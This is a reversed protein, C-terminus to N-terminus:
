LIKLADHNREFVEEVLLGVGKNANAPIHPAVARPRQGQLKFLEILSRGLVILNLQIVQHARGMRPSRVKGREKSGGRHGENQTAKM